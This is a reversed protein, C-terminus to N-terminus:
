KKIFRNRFTCGKCLEFYPKCSNFGDIVNLYLQSKLIYNLNENFINGLKTDGKCDLCCLCVTGDTLIALQKKGGLCKGNLSNISKSNSPWEFEDDTSFRVNKSMEVIADLKDLIYNNLHKINLNNKNNWLRLNIPLSPNVDNKYKLFDIINCLYNDVQENDFQILSQLSINIKKINDLSCLIAQYKKILTGNTTLGLPINQLSCYELIKIIDKHLLPEGLVHLYLLEIRDKIKEIIKVFNDFDLTEGSTGKSSPCFPCSLNCRKTIEVYFTFKKNNM